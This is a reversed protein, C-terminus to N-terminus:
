GLREAWKIPEVHVRVVQGQQNREIEVGPIAVHNPVYSVEADSNPAVDIEVIPCVDHIGTSGSYDMDKIIEDTIEMGCLRCTVTEM